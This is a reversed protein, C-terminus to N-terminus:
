LSGASRKGTARGQKGQNIVTRQRNYIVHGRFEMLAVHWESECQKPISHARITLLGGVIKPDHSFLCCVTIIEGFKMEWAASYLNEDIPQREGFKGIRSVAIVQHKEGHAGNAFDQVTNVTGHVRAFKDLRLLLGGGCVVALLGDGRKLGDVDLQMALEIRPELGQGLRDLWIKSVEIWSVQLVTLKLCSKVGGFM